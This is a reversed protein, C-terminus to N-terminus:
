QEPYGIVKMVQDRARFIRSRVTGVPCQLVEAIEEYSFGDFERLLLAMRLEEPLDAIAKDLLHKMQKGVLQAEPSQQDTLATIAGGGVEDYADDISRSVMRTSCQLYNLAANVAIRYLWTYFASDGRFLAISRYAKIFADQAVDRVDQPNKVYRAILSMVRGQYRVVLFDFARRDGRQVREVLEMDTDCPLDPAMNNDPQMLREGATGRNAVSEPVLRAPQIHTM